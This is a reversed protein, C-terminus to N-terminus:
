YKQRRKRDAEKQGRKESERREDLARSDAEALGLLAAEIVAVAESCPMEFGRYRRLQAVGEHHAKPDDSRFRAAHKLLSKSGRLMRDALEELADYGARRVNEPLPESM